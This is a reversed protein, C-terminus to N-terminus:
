SLPDLHPLELLSGYSASQQKTSEIKIVLSYLDASSVSYPYPYAFAKHVTIFELFSHYNTTISVPAKEPDLETCYKRSTSAGWGVQGQKLPQGM